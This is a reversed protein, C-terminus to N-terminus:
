PCCHLYFSLFLKNCISICSLENFKAATEFQCYKDIWFSLPRCPSPVPPSQRASRFSTPVFFLFCRTTQSAAEPQYGGGPVEGVSLGQKSCLSGVRAPPM